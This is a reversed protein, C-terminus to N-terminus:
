HSEPSAQGGQDEDPEGQKARMMEQFEIWSRERLDPPVEPWDMKKLRAVLPDDQEREADASPPVPTEPLKSTDQPERGTHSRSRRSAFPTGKVESVYDGVAPLGQGLGIGASYGLPNM